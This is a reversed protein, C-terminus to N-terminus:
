DGGRTVVLTVMIMVMTVMVVVTTGRWQLLCAHLSFLCFSSLVYCLPFIQSSFLSGLQYHQSM